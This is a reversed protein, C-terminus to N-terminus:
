KSKLKKLVDLAKKMHQSANVSNFVMLIVGEKSVVYPERGPLLNFLKGEIKFL